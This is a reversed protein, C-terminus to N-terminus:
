QTGSQSAQLGGFEGTGAGERGTPASPDHSVGDVKVLSSGGSESLDECIRAFMEGLAAEKLGEGNSKLSCM